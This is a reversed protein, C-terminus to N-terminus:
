GPHCSLKKPSTLYLQPGFFSHANALCLPLPFALCLAWCWHPALLSGLLTCPNTAIPVAAKKHFRLESVVLSCLTRCGARSSQSLALAEDRKDVATNGSNPFTSSTYCVSSLCQNSSYVFARNAPRDERTWNRFGLPGQLHM